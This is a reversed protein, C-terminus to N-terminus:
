CSGEASREEEESDMFHAKFAIRDELKVKLKSEISLQDDFEDEDENPSEM